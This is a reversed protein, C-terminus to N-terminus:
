QVTDAILYACDSAVPRHQFMSSVEIWDGNREDDFWKRVKLPASSGEKVFTYLASPKRLGPNREIYAVFAADTWLFTMATTTDLGEQSNNYSASARLVTQVGFLTQLLGETVSDPGTYKVRDVVSVHEKAAKFTGEDLAVTNAKKGSQRAIVTTASDVFSIPNSLTTNASWAFTSTLSTLNAWNSRTGVLTSLLQEKRLLIKDTLNETADVDLRIAPDANDRSRTTVLDKLAYDTVTYTSTTVGFTTEAAPAGNAREATDIRFNDKIYVYYTDSEHMVPVTPSLMDAIMGEPRYKVSINELPKNRHIDYPNVPM